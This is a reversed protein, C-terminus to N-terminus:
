KRKITNDAVKEKYLDYIFQSCKQEDNLPVQEIPIRRLFIKANLKQGDKIKFVTPDEGDIKNVALTIDYIAQV